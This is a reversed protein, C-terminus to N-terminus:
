SVFIGTTLIVSRQGM